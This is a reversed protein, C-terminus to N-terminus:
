TVGNGRCRVDCLKIRLGKREMKIKRRFQSFCDVDPQNGPLTKGNTKLDCKKDDTVESQLDHEVSAYYGLWMTHNRFLKFPSIIILINGSM